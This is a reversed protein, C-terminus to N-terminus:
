IAGIKKNRMKKMFAMTNQGAQGQSSIVPDHHPYLMPEKSIGLNVIHNRKIKMFNVCAAPTESGEPPKWQWVKRMECVIM